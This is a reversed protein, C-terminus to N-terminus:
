AVREPVRLSSRAAELRTSTSRSFLLAAADSVDLADHAAARTLAFSYLERRPAAFAALAGPASLFAAELAALGNEASFRRM